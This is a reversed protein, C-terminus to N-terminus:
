PKIQQTLLIILGKIILSIVEGAAWSVIANGAMALAKMGLEAAKSAKSLGDLAVKGGNASAVLNKAKESANKMTRYFATQSGVCADIQQNYNKIANIDSKSLVESM